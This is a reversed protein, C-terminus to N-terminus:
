YSCWFSFRAGLDGGDGGGADVLSVGEGGQRECGTFILSPTRAPGIGSCGPCCGPPPHFLLSADCSGLVSSVDHVSFLSRTAQLTLLPPMESSFLCPLSAAPNWPKCEATDMWLGPQISLSFLCTPCLFFVSVSVWDLGPSPVMFALCLGGPHWRFFAGPPQPHSLDTVQPTPHLATLCLVSIPHCGLWLHCASDTLPLRLHWLIDAAGRTWCATVLQLWQPACNVRPYLSPDM